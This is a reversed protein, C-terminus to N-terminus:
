EVMGLNTDKLPVTDIGYGFDGTWVYVLVGAEEDIYRHVPGISGNGIETWVEKTEEEEITPTETRRDRNTTVVFAMLVGAIAASVAVTTGWRLMEGTSPKKM